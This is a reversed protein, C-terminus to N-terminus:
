KQFNTLLTVNNTKFFSIYEQPPTKDTVFYDLNELKCYTMLSVINIKTHDVLLINVTSKDILYKKIDHELPSTNTVGRSLSVGTSALFSKSINFNKLFEIVSAGTFSNTARYLVGGTSIITLNTYPIAAMIVNLNYTIITLNTKKALFPLMHMCTTGSDIFIVDGDEVIESALEAIVKKEDQNKIERSEFPEVGDKRNNIIGGYVKKISGRLELEAIDRRITNKSVKFTDCLKDLSISGVNQIHQEIKNLRNIKLIILM